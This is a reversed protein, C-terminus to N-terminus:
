KGGKAIRAQAAKKARETRQEATLNAMGAKAALAKQASMVAQICGIMVERYCKGELKKVRKVLRDLGRAELWSITWDINFDIVGEDKRENRFLEYIFEAPELFTIDDETM